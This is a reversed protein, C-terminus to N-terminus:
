ARKDFEEAVNLDFPKHKPNKSYERYISNCAYCVTVEPLSKYLLYDIVGCTTLGVVLAPLTFGLILYSLIISAIVILLGIKRNFDKQVYFRDSDCICCQDIIGHEEISISPTMHTADSCHACNIQRQGVETVIERSCHCCSFAIKM